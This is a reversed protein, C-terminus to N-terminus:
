FRSGDCNVRSAGGSLQCGVGYPANSPGAGLMYHWPRDKGYGEDCARPPRYRAAIHRGCFVARLKAPILGNPLASKIGIAFFINIRSVLTMRWSLEQILWNSSCSTAIGMVTMSSSSRNLFPFSVSLFVNGFRNDVLEVLVGKFDICTGHIEPFVNQGIFVDDHAVALFGTKGGM